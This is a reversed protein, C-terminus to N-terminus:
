FNIRRQLIDIELKNRRGGQARACSAGMVKPIQTFKFALSERARHAGDVGVGNRFPKRRTSSPIKELQVYFPTSTNMITLIDPDGVGYAHPGVAGMAKHSASTQYIAKIREWWEPRM